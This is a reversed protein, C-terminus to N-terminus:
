SRQHDKLHCILHHTRIGLYNLGTDRPKFNRQGGKFNYGSFERSPIQNCMDTMNQHVGILEIIWLM